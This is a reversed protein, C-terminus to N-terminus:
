KGDPVTAVVRLLDPAAAEAVAMGIDGWQGEIVVRPVDNEQTIVGAESGDPKLVHWLIRIHDLDPPVPRVEVTGAIAVTDPTQPDDTLAAGSQKLLFALSRRLSKAGDGPAGEIARVLLRRTSQHEVPATDEILAALKPAEDRMSGALAAADPAADPRLMARQTDGGIEVGAADRLTWRIDWGAAAPAAAGALHFSRANGATTSAPIEIAQLALVMADALAPAVGDPAGQVPEVVIGLAEPVALIPAHPDLKDAEFPHPEVTCGALALLALSLLPVAPRM